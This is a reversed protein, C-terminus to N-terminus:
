DIWDSYWDEQRDARKLAELGKNLFFDVLLRISPDQLYPSTGAAPSALDFCLPYLPDSLM